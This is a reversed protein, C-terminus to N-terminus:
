RRDKGGEANGSGSELGEWRRVKEGEIKEVKRMGVEAKWDKEGEIKEGKRM